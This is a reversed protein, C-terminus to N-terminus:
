LVTATLCSQPNQIHISTFSVATVCYSFQKFPWINTNVNQLVYNHTVELIANIDKLVDTVNKKM